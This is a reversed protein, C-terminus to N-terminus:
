NKTLMNWTCNRHESCHLTDQIGALYKTGSLACLQKRIIWWIEQQWIIGSNEETTLM